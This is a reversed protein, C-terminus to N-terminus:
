RRSLLAEDACAGHTAGAQLLSACADIGGGPQRVLAAASAGLERLLAVLGAVHASAYSSGSVFEWRGGPVTTPVDRGPALWAGAPLPPAAGVAIVGRHSAPFGGDARTADVAGVIGIRRALAADLLEALLRDDPGSLSLNIVDAREDIAGQLAKALSLSTCLTKDASAERCARLALVRAGPAVGAIGIGNDARAAIIGAVATGHHEPAAPSGDVYSESRGIQGALDPHHTDVGSDIVAVRVNRGTAAAHLDALHWEAAAPQSAYLPDDHRAPAAGAQARYVHMPQAWAIRTDHELEAAVREPTAAAPVDLVYCDVGLLPMPWDGVLTLGHERAIRTAVSRRSARGLGDGYGGAYGADPRYHAAPLHLMVLVQHAASREDDTARAVSGICLLALLLVIRPLRRM